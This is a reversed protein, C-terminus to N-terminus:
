SVKFLVSRPVMQAQIGAPAVITPKLEASQGEALRPLEVLVRVLAQNAEIQHLTPIPGSLLLEVEAPSITTTLEATINFTEVPRRLVLDGHRPRIQAHVTVNRVLSGNNDLAQIGPPLDLPIHISMDGAAQDIEVPLTDVYGGIDALRDPTGQLTVGAPNVSLGSLWYGPGPTGSTVARIGVDRANARQRIAASVRIQAPQLSVGAVEQGLEDLAKLPRLERLFTDQNALSVIAQIRSVREVLPAPGIVQVQDPSAVPAKVLTYAPSLRQQEPLEVVVPLTRSIVPVLELDLMSPEISLVHVQLTGSNIRLPLHHLGPSFDALSVVAQLSSPRLTDQVRATTQILASVTAPLPTMVTTDAPINEVRLPINDMRVRRIPNTQEGVFSWMAAALLLAVILLVASSLLWRLGFHAPRPFLQRGFRRILSLLSLQSRAPISPAYFDVLQERLAASDLPRLLQGHRAVSIEGTEESVVIVLADGTESLGVAARHRTGLRRDDCDLPQQTLPLMCGAAVVRDERLIVAGDHLPTEPYFISQLLESAAKSNLYVGSETVDQLSQNGELVILAGIGRASLNEVTRLLRPLLNEAVTQRVSRTLGASRGVQELLRRLEPQLIVPISVLMAILIGRVLWDFTPLPLLVTVGFLVVGSALAGRLLFAARSRRILILALYFVLAVLLLDLVSVWTLSSLRFIVDAYLLQLPMM